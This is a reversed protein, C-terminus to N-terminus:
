DIWKVFQGKANRITHRIGYKFKVISIKEGGEIRRYGDTLKLSARSYKREDGKFFTDLVAQNLERKSMKPADPIYRNIERHVRSYDTM